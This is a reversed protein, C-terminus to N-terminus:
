NSRVLLPSGGFPMEKNLEAYSTKATGWGLAPPTRLVWVQAVTGTLEMQFSPPHIVSLKTLERAVM